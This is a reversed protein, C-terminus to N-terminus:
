IKGFTVRDNGAYDQQTTIDHFSNEKLIAQVSDAQNYGHEILLWGNEALYTPAQQCIIRIDELGDKGSSLATIPEFILDGQELHPDQNEIYPPNSLIINFTTNPQKEFVSFWNSQSFSINLNHNKANLKATKLANADFDIAFADINPNEHKLACIIAGSGTGLDLIKLPLISGRPYKKLLFLTKEVIIETDARPILTHENVAFKLGWFEQYGIIYAIPNGTLRTNLFRQFTQQEQTTLLKEPWTYLYSRNKQIVETLLIEADVKPSDVIGAQKLKQQADHLTAQISTLM